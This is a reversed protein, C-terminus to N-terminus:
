ALSSSGRKRVVKVATHSMLPERGHVRDRERAIVEGGPELVRADHRGEISQDLPERGLVPDRECLADEPNPMVPLSRTVNM